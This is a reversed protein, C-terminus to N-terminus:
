PTLVVKGSGEKEAATQGEGAKSLPLILGIPLKLRSDFVAEAFHVVTAADPHAMFAHVHVNPYDVAGAPPGVVSGFNGGPRVTDLLLTGTHHGITDAVADVHGLGRIADEEDLDIAQAAGLALAEAIQHKRVGAIVNVGLELATFLACRGVSGLAGSLLITEGRQAKAGLTILQQGTLAVLPVAAADTFDLGDPMKSLEAAKVICLEAYTAWTVALVQDGVAFGTVGEGLQEVTGAVDRGLVGPFTVPFREKAAGSRMKWDVPNISAAHVRVLVEGPGPTPEPFDEYKLEEPGGYQHLVVAKM